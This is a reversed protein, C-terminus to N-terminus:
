RHPSLKVTHGDEQPHGAVFVVHFLQTEAVITGLAMGEVQIEALTMYGNAVPFRLGTLVGATGNVRLQAVTEALAEELYRLLASRMYGSMGVQVRFRRLLGFRPTLFRHVLEHARVLAQDSATGHPSLRVEGFPSTSGAGAPETADAVVAPKSWIRGPEPDPGVEPLGPERPRMAQGVNAGRTTVVQRVSQRLLLAMVATVGALVVAHQFSKAAADLDAESRARLTREAFTYLESAVEGISWGITFAGVTLLLVDVIEGVGFLHSGVWATLTGAMIALNTPSLLQDVMQGFESGMGNKSRQLVQVLRQQFSM